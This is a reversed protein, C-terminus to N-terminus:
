NEHAILMYGNTKPLHQTHQHPQCSDSPTNDSVFLLEPAPKHRATDVEDSNVVTDDTWVDAAADQMASDTDRSRCTRGTVAAWLSCWCRSATVECLLRRGDDCLWGARCWCRSEAAATSLKVELVLLLVVVAATTHRPRWCRCGGVPPAAAVVLVELGDAEVVDVDLPKIRRCRWDVAVVYLSSRRALPRVTALLLLVTEDLVVGALLVLQLLPAAPGRGVSRTLEDDRHRWSVKNIHFSCTANKM